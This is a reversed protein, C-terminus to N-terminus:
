LSAFTFTATALQNTDHSTVAMGALLSGTLGPLSVTSGPVPTWTVGDPSTSASFTTGTRTVSLYLPAAPGSLLVPQNTVAGSAARYQVILGNSPTLMVAYYAAGATTDARLMLGAKTWANTNSLSTLRASVTGDGPLTQAVFRFQDSTGAIDGGGGRVTWAAPSQTQTGTPTASGIDVCTYAASCIGPPETSTTGLTVASLGVSSLQSTDHSTVAIGELYNAQLTMAVASGPVTTWTVGDLSTLASYYTVPTAGSTDTWRSVELFLPVTGAVEIQDTGGAQTTRWQVVVGNAPTALVAYYPSAPDVSGRMMVGAKAWPNTAQQSTVEASITGDGTAATDIFRFQDSAGWIDGGGGGVTWVGGSLNQGGAPAAGGIDGCSWGSPCLGPPASAGATVALHDFAIQSSTTQSNSDGGWGALLTGPMALAVTSGAVPTWTTGVNSTYATYYTTGGGDTHRTVELYAPVTGPLLIQATVAGETARYQVAIGNGPTIFVGYYPSGADTSARVMVGAKAWAGTNQQSAVRASVSGDGTLNQWVLHLQDAGAWIDGGGVTMTLTGNTLTQSGPPTAGGIDACGSVSAPCAGPPILETNSFLAFANFTVPFTTKQNYSDAAMGAMLTGPLNLAVTSGPIATFNVNDTSWYSTYYTLGGAHPDTWRGIMLYVPYEPLPGPVLVQSTLGAEATRWQVALGHQPTVFVGYYPTQPDNSGRMMVGSKQWEVDYNVPGASTVQASVTGDGTLSQSVFHFSDFVDWIDPGGASFTWTGNNYEQGGSQYGNGIDQCTFGQPCVGPPKSSVNSIGVNDWTSKNLARATAQSGGIGALPHAGLNLAVTSGNVETWSTGNSSTLLSYYTVPPSQTTDTYRNIQFWAPLTLTGIPITVRQQIGNVTRWEITATLKPTVVVGYFPSGTTTDARMMLTTQATASGNAISTLRGTIVGDGGMAQYVYHFQDAIRNNGLGDTALNIGEGGGSVTWVGAILTEDGIPSGAGVDTCKWGAPCAHAENQEVYTQTPPGITLKQYVATTTATPTGSAVGVGALLTTPMVITHVTASILTYNVGNTSFLTQFTDGHRQVMIYRPFALPYNQTLEIVPGGWTNRYFMIVNAVTEGEASYTPDQLATYFPAGLAASQRIIIGLQPQQFGTLNGATESMDEVSVQFDGSAPATIIRMQDGQTRGNGSATVTVSGDSNVVESGAIGPKGIDQCTFGAPCNPDPPPPGPLTSPLGFAYFDGNLAGLYLTGGAVAPAGYTGAGLNYTWLSAGTAANLAEIVQGQCDFIVGNDEIISGLIPANTEHKWIVAGTGPNFATVSGGHGLGGADSNSGGAYYLVGNAFTGSAISGDGCTPCDGGDAIQSQWIPGAALNNRNLAYLIGNKNALSLLQDGNTDTTLTPTTGWDSDSVAAEFPLQWHDVVAMTTANIAVVAQSLTQSYLNLTGTSVFIKNTAADYTPSTWIGGGVQGNPVMIAMGVVQHTALSVKLLQGQVVPADCVSATGIYAYPQGDAPDTIILPSSWNYYAGATPGLGTPVSWLIAGTSASLAYWQEEGNTGSAGGVYVVGNYVTASSTIGLNPPVCPPDTLTGLFTKWIVAGTSANLAYEYGNWSGIYAVGNVIAPEAAIIGGTVTAFKRQLFPVNAPTLTTDASVSTRAPDHLYTPWDQSIAAAAARRAQATPTATAPSARGATAGVGTKAPKAHAAFAATSGTATWVGLFSTVAALAVVARRFGPAHRKTHTGGSV